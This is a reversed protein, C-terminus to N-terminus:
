KNVVQNLLNTLDNLNRTFRIIEAVIELDEDAIEQARYAIVLETAQDSSPQQQLFHHVSYGYLDALKTLTLIDIERRGNEYYSIQERVTGVLKAAQNQTIGTRERAHQLREGIMKYTNM